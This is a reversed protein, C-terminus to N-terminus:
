YAIDDDSGPEREEPPEPTGGREAWACIEDYKDRTIEHSSTFGYLVIRERIKVESIGKAQCIAWLRKRQPETIKPSDAPTARPRAKDDNGMEEAPVSQFGGMLAVYSFKNRLARSIAWTQAASKAAKDKESGKKSQCPYADLGCSSEGAGIVLGESNLLQVRAEYGILKNEEDRWPRVWEPVAKVNAFEAIMLWGEVQLYKKGGVEKSMGCKKVIDMLRGAWYTATDITLDTQKKREDLTIPLSHDERIAVATSEM